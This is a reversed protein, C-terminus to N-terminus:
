YKSTQWQVILGETSSLINKEERTRRNEQQRAWEARVVEVVPRRAILPSTLFEALLVVKNRRVPYLGGTSPPGWGPGFVASTSSSSSGRAIASSGGFGRGWVMNGFFTVSSARFGGSPAACMGWCSTSTSMQLYSEGQKLFTDAYILPFNTFYCSFSCSLSFISYM